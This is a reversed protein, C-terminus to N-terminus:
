EELAVGLLAARGQVQSAGHSSIRDRQQQVHAGVNRGDVGHPRRRQVHRRQMTLDLGDLM